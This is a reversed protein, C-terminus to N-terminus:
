FANPMAFQSRHPGGVAKRQRRSPCDGCSGPHPDASRANPSFCSASFLWTTTGNYGGVILVRGNNLLTATHQYRAVNLSGTPTFTGSLPDYLEASMLYMAQTHGNFGGTVLVAGSNLLTATHYDRATNLSGTATFTGASPDYLEASALQFGLGGDGGAALVKGNNNLLTATHLQRYTNLSGTTTFTGNAPNYLEDVTSGQDGGGVILAMGDTLLTATHYTRATNLNGTATFTRANPDYLEASVARAGSAITGGAVLVTGNKLLTATHLQRGTNLSGTPTFTGSLPDYLEASTLYSGNYGGAILVKGNSLLLTATHYARATNLSGTATFLGTAPDYLEASTLFGFTGQGGVILVKGNSLLTATHNARATNLSGTLAFAGAVTLTTSGQIAGLTAEITTQGAGVATALGVANITGVATNSSSWSVTASLDQM